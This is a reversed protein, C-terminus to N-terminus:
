SAVLVCVQLEAKVGVETCIKRKAGSSMRCQRIRRAVEKSPTEGLSRVKRADGETVSVEWSRELSRLSRCEVELM